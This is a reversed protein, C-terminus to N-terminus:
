PKIEVWEDGDRRAGLIEGEQDGIKPLGDLNAAYVVRDRHRRQAQEYQEHAADLAETSADLIVKATESLPWRKSMDEDGEV